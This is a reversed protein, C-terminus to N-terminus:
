NARAETRSAQLTPLVPRILTFSGTAGPALQSPSLTAGRREIIEGRRGYWTRVVTIGTATTSGTNRISGTERTTGDPETTTTVSGAALGYSRGPAASTVAYSISAYSPVVGAIVFSTVRGNGLWRAFAVGRLTAVVKGSSSRLTATVTVPGRTLGTNNVVDGVIRLSSGALSVRTSRIPLGAALARFRVVYPSPSWAERATIRVRYTGAALVRTLEEFRAGSRDATALLTSCSGYLDLRGNVPLDGLTVMVRRTSTLTFRFWDVDGAGSIRDPIWSGVRSAATASACTDPADPVFTATLSVPETAVVERVRVPNGDWASFRYRKGAVSVVAPASVTAGGGRIVTTVSPSTRSAGGVDIVVADPISSVSITSTAPHLEISTRRQTGNSDTATLRLVLHSPYEHDPAPFSGAAAGAFSQVVHEHCGAPCHFMVVEWNLQSPALVGDTTDTASGSFSIEDGVSWALPASPTDIRPVPPDNSADVVLELTDTFGNSSEVQLTIPYVGPTQIPWDVSAGQLDNPGTFSGDHDLDWRWAVLRSAPDPDPDTSSSADLTFTAPALAEQPTVEARAVPELAYRIRVVRGGDLDVYYLDGGPGTLLDVPGGIGTAITAMTGADPQGGPGARLVALCKRSYDVFFLADNYAAPYAATGATAGKYFALGTTSANQRGNVDPAWCPGTPTLAQTHSWAYVPATVAGSGAAYLNACLNTGLSQWTTRGAGEYCPWGFNPLTTPTRPGTPVSLRVIEEWTQNGVDGVFLESTGPRFTMRFPNRLGHGVIRRANADANGALPNGVSAVGTDPDIRIISGGLGVPDATTRVDQSRLAGGEASPVDVVPTTGPASTVTVPDNCPNVPTIPSAPTPLTGGKQGYDSLNFSAGEGAALYLQGDSGFALGGGSHSPFQQCWDELLTTRRGPVAVNTGPDLQVRELRSTVPCGDATGGPPNPCVDNWVPAVQGPPADYVYFLYLYPRGTLFAPDIALGLLGRDWYSNVDSRIDLVTTPTTDTISDFVRVRGAKEAVFARGDAAFRITTPMSLGTFVTVERFYRDTFTGAAAAADSGTIRAVPGAVVVTAAVVTAVLVAFTRHRRDRGQRVQM